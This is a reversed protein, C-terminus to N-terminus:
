FLYIIGKIYDQHKSCFDQLNLLNELMLCTSSWRTVQDITANKIGEQKIKNRMSPTRLNAALARSSALLKANSKLRLFKVIALQLQHVVCNIKYTAIDENEYCAIVNALDSELLEEEIPEDFEVAATLDLKFPIAEPYHQELNQLDDSSEYEEEILEVDDVFLISQLDSIFDKAAKNINMKIIFQFFKKSIDINVTSVGQNETERSM